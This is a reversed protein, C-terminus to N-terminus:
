AVLQGAWLLATVLLWADRDARLGFLRLPLMPLPHAAGSVAERQKCERCRPM